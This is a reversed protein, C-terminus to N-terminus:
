ILILFEIADTDSYCLDLWKKAQNAKLYLCSLYKVFIFSLSM